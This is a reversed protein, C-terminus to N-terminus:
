WGLYKIMEIFIQKLDIFIDKYYSNQIVIICKGENKMVRDIEKLSLFISHFYQLYTKLYYTRSAKSHHNEIKSLTELCT